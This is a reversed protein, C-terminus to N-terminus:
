QFQRMFTRMVMGLFGCHMSGGNKDNIKGTKKAHRAYQKEWESFLMDCRKPNTKHLGDIINYFDKVTHIEFFANKDDLLDAVDELDFLLHDFENHRFDSVFSVKLDIGFEDELRVATLPKNFIYAMRRLVKDQICPPVSETMNIVGNITTAHAHTRHTAAHRAPVRLPPSFRCADKTCGVTTPAPKFGVGAFGDANWAAGHARRVHTRHTAVHGAPLVRLPPPFFIRAEQAAGWSYPRTQFGGRCFGDANLAAGHARRADARLRPLFAHPMFHM